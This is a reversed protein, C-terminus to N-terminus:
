EHASGQGAIELSSRHVDSAFIKLKPRKSMADACDHLLIAFTYAEEGTACGQFGSGYKM